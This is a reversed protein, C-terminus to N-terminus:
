ANATKFNISCAGGQKARSKCVGCYAGSAVDCITGACQEDVYCAAGDALNGCTGCSPDKIIADGVPNLFAYLTSCTTGAWIDGAVAYAAAKLQVGPASLTQECELKERAVCTAQSDYANLTVLETWCQYM